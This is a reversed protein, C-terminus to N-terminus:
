AANGAPLEAIMGSTVTRSMRPMQLRGDRAEFFAAFSSSIFSGIAGGPLRRPGGLSVYQKPVPPAFLGM